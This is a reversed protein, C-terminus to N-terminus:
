AGGENQADEGIMDPGNMFSEILEYYGPLIEELKRKGAPTLRVLKARRDEEHGECTVLGSEVLAALTRTMVPRSVDVRSAIQSMTLADTDPERDIVVLIIYRLQSVGHGAFYADLQRILLSARRMLRLAGEVADVNMNPFRKHYSELMRRTPLEKLFFM